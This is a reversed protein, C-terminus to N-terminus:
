VWLITLRTLIMMLLVMMTMMQFHVFCLNSCHFIVFLIILLAISFKRWFIGPHDDNDDLDGLLYSDLDQESTSTKSKLKGEIAEEGFAQTQDVKEDKAQAIQKLKNEEVYKREYSYVHAFFPILSLKVLHWYRLKCTFTSLGLFRLLMRPYM